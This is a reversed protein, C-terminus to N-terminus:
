QARRVGEAQKKVLQGEQGPDPGFKWMGQAVEDHSAQDLAAMERRMYAVIEALKEFNVDERAGLLNRWVAAALWPDGKVLGEDYALLVARWQAFLDKLYKQRLSNATIHHYVVLRDEAAYFYHNTMHQIWIPAHTSPFTRLRVQILWLHLFSIQSWNSFTPALGLTEYWWGSAVGLHTGNEDTPIEGGKEVAQPVEYHGPRICEKCMDQAAAYAVYTETMLPAKEMIKKALGRAIGGGAGTPIPHTVQSPEEVGPQQSIYPKSQSSTTKSSQKKESFIPTTHYLVPSSTSLARHTTRLLSPHNQPFSKAYTFLPSSKSTARICARCIYHSAM